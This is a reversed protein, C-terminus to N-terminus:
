APAGSERLGTRSCRAGWVESVVDLIAPKVAAAYIVVEAISGSPRGLTVGLGV